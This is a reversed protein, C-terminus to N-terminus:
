RKPKAFNHKSSLPVPPNFTNAGCQFHCLRERRRDVKVGELDHLHEKIFIKVCGVNKQFNVDVLEGMALTLLKRDSKLAMANSAAIKRRMRPNPKTRYLSRTNRISGMLVPFRLGGEAPRYEKKKVENFSVSLKRNDSSDPPKCLAMEGAVAGVPRGLFAFSVRSACAGAYIWAM